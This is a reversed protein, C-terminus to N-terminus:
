SLTNKQYVKKHLEYHFGGLGPNEDHITWVIPKNIKRFFSPFDVFDSVWHLHIIDADKILPHNVINTYATIPSTFFANSTKAAKKRKYTLYEFKPRLILRLLKFVIRIFINKHEKYLWDIDAISINNDPAGQMLLIKSDVGQQKLSNSIRMACWSAGGDPLKTIHVVKM